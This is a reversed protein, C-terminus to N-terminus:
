QLTYPSDPTGNGSAIITDSKFFFVPRMVRGAHWKDHLFGGGSTVYWHDSNMFESGKYVTMLWYDQAAFKAYNATNHNYQSVWMEGVKPLGFTTTVQFENICIPNYADNSNEMSGRYWKINQAIKATSIGIKNLRESMSYWEVVYYPRHTAEDFYGEPMAAAGDYIVKTLEGSVEIIRWLKNDYSIFEGTHRLNLKTGSVAPATDGTIKYPDTETGHGISITLDPTFVLVPRVGRFYETPTIPPFTSSHWHYNVIYGNYDYSTHESSTMLWYVNGSNLYNPHDYYDYNANRVINYEDLTLLGAKLNPLKNTCTTRTLNIDAGNFGNATDICFDNNQKLVIDKSGNLKPYFYTELWKKIGSGAYGAPYGEMSLSSVNDDTIIKISGDPNIAYVRWMMGSWWVYNNVKNLEGRIYTVNNDATYKNESPLNTMLADKLKIKTDKVIVIRNVTKSGNLSDVAKYVLNYTGVVNPNIFGSISVALAQNNWDRGIYGPENYSSGKEMIYPNDGYLSITPLNRVYVNRTISNFGGLSDTISYTITYAGVQNVNVGGSIQANLNNNNWDRASYYYEYYSKGLSINMPNDGYLSITPLNRVYVNRTISNFGGLSDTISYTITYAGVQNVNVGGSIQANLNNNNWDRATYGPEYYPHGL